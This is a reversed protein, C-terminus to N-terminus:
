LRLLRSDEEDISIFAIGTGFLGDDIEESYVVEGEASIIKDDIAIDLELQMGKDLQRHTEIKAGGASVDLTRAISVIYEQREDKKPIYSTLHLSRIRSSARKERVSDLLAARQMRSYILKLHEVHQDWLETPNFESSLM